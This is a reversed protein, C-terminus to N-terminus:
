RRKKKAKKKKKTTPNLPSSENSSRLSRRPASPSVSDAHSGDPSIALRPRLRASPSVSGAQSEDPTLPLRSRLRTSPSVSDAQTGEPTLPLRSKLLDIKTTEAPTDSIIDDPAPTDGPTYLGNFQDATIDSSQILPQTDDTNNNLLSHNDLAPPIQRRKRRRPLPPVGTDEGIAADDDDKYRAPLLTGKKRSSLVSKFKFSDSIGHSDERDAVHKFFKVLSDVKMSRPDKLEVDTPM